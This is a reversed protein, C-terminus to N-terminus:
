PARLAPERALELLHEAARRVEALSTHRSFSVRLVQKARREDLGLALLAPSLGGKKAQCASGVSTYVGRAELQHMWAEAPAGPLMLALIASTCGESGGPEVRACGLPALAALLAEKLTAFHARSAALAADALAAARGLGVIGAVNETGARLGREQAGGHFLPRPAVPADFVLAGAGKPGHFKHAGFALSTVGLSALSVEVKGLAQVADVHFLAQPAGARVVRAARALPHVTGFENNVLMHAVLVTDPRLRRALDDLDLTGRADLRLSEVEFGEGALVQAPERVCPHETAGVLVHKGLSARARAFGLVALNNAETGGSTFVVQESRAGSAHALEARAQELARAARVGPAHRSSPNGFEGELYPLMAARVAPDLQTTAANDLYIAELGALM